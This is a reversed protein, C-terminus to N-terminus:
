GAVLLWLIKFFAFGALAAFIFLWRTLNKEKRQEEDFQDMIRAAKRRMEECHRCM